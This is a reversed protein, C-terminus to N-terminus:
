PAGPPTAPLRPIIEHPYWNAVHCAECAGDLQEGSSLLAAPDRADVATLIKRATARLALAFANFEARHAALRQQIETSSFVGPGDSPFPARSVQRGPILLLNTAEVLVVADRRLAAWEADTRPEREVVGTATTISGVSDWIHDACADVEYRMLDQLTATAELPASTAASNATEVPPATQSSCAACILLTAFIPRRLITMVSV